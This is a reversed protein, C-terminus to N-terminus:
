TTPRDPLWAPLWASSCGESAGSGATCGQFVPGLDRVSTFSAPCGYPFKRTLGRYRQRPATGAHLDAVM